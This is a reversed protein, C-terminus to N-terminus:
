EEFELVKKEWESELDKLEACCVEYERLLKDHDPQMYFDKDMMREEFNRKLKDLEDIRKEMQRIERKLKKKDEFSLETKTEHGDLRAHKSGSSQTAQMEVQRMNELSISELYEEIGGLFKRIKGDRFAIIKGVLGKLFDRDHSVLILTGAYQELAQKLISKSPIDLHHTPEDLILVNSPRLLLRALALRSREGGSLVKVKKDVDENPFLFAGLIGRLRTRM